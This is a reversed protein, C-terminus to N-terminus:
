TIWQIESGKEEEGAEETAAMEPCIDLMANLHELLLWLFTALMQDAIERGFQKEAAKFIKVAGVTLAAVTEELRGRTKVSCGAEERMDIQISAETNGM